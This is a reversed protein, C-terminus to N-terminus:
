YIFGLIDCGRMEWCLLVFDGAITRYNESVFFRFQGRRGNQSFNFNENFEVKAHPHLFRGFSPRRVDNSIFFFFPPFISSAIRTTHPREGCKVNVLLDIFKPFLSSSPRNKEPFFWHRIMYAHLQFM